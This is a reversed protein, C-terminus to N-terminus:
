RVGKILATMKSDLAWQGGLRVAGALQLEASGDMDSVRLYARSLMFRPEWKVIATAAAAYIMLRTEDNLPHDILEPLLSGFERRMVRSGIPTTLIQQISQEIQRLGQIKRGTKTDLGSM